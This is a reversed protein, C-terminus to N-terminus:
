RHRGTRPQPSRIPIIDHPGPREPRTEPEPGAGSGPDGAPPLLHPAASHGLAAQEARLAFARAQLGAATLDPLPLPAERPPGSRLRALGAGAYADCVRLWYAAEYLPRAPPTGAARDALLRLCGGLADLCARADEADAWRPERGPDHRRARDEARAAAGGLARTRAGPAAAPPLAHRARDAAQGASSAALALLAGAAPDAHMAQRAAGRVAAALSGAARATGAAIANRPATGAALGPQDLLALRLLCAEYRAEAAPAAFAPPAAPATM